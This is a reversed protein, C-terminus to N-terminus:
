VPGRVGTPGAPGTSGPPGVPGTAGVPGTPGAAGTPGAPGPNGPPGQAGPPGEAGTAGPVGGGSGSGTRSSGVVVGQGNGLQLIYVTDGAVPAYSGIYSLTGAASDPDNLGYKVNVQGPTPVSVVRAVAYGSPQRFNALVDVLSTPM